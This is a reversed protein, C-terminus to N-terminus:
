LSRHRGHYKFLSEDICVKQSPTYMAKFRVSLTDIVPWIKWHTDDKAKPDENNSFHLYSRIQQFRDRSMVLGPLLVGGDYPDAAWYDRFRPLVEYGMFIRLGVYKQVESVDVDKWCVQKRLTHTLNQFAYLNTEEAMTEWLDM